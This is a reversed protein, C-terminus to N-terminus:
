REALLEVIRRELEEGELGTYRVRGKRDILFTAPIAMVHNAKVIDSEFAKGDYIQPFEMGQDAMTKLVRERRDAEDLCIGVVDLGQGEFKRHAAVVGPMAMLCPRCWTAWYDVLLVRGGRGDTRVEKGDLGPGAVHVFPKPGTYDVEYLRRLIHVREADDLGHDKLLEPIISKQLFERGADTGSDRGRRGLLWFVSYNDKRMRMLLPLQERCAQWEGADALRVAEFLLVNGALTEFGAAPFAEHTRLWGILATTATAKRPTDALLYGAVNRLVAREGLDVSAAAELWAIAAESRQEVAAENLVRRDVLERLQEV